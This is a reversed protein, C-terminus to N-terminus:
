PVKSEDGSTAPVHTDPDAPPPDPPNVPTEASAEKSWWSERSRPKGRERKGRLSDIKEQTLGLDAKGKGCVDADCLMGRGPLEMKESWSKRSRPKGLERKGRLSDIKEQTLGLDAKCEGCVDVDCVTGRGPLGMKEWGANRFMEDDGRFYGHCIFCKRSVYAAVERQKERKVLYDLLEQIKELSTLRVGCGTCYNNEWPNEEGCKECIIM